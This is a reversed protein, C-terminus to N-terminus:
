ADEISTPVALALNRRLGRPYRNNLEGARAKAWGLPVGGARVVVWGNPAPAALAEGRVYALVAPDDVEFDIRAAGAALDPLVRSLAHDPEFRGPAMRGLAVGIRRPAPGGEPVGEPVALLRDGVRKLVHRALPDGGLVADAFSRWTAVDSPSAPVPGAHGRRGAAGARPSRESAARVVTADPTRRLRAVFHGEGAQRHPWWRATAHELAAPGAPGPRGSAAAPLDLAELVLDTRRRLLEEVVGEDEEEAFTCTAYVLVGGPRVLDAALDLLGIQTRACAAVHALSWQARAADSKRFMGEGSCPADVLVRDFAGALPRLADVPGQTVVATRAGWRELNGALADTRAPVADHAWLVGAGALRGEIQTAKGGPAAALDLVREGPRPDLAPVVGM